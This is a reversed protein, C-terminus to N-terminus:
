DDATSSTPVAARAQPERGQPLAASQAAPYRELESVRRNANRAERTARIRAPLMLLTGILLGLVFAGLLAWALTIDVTWVVFTLSVPHINQLGFVAALVALIALLVNRMDITETHNNNSGNVRWRGAHLGKAVKCLQLAYIV